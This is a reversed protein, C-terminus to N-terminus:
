GWHISVTPILLSLPISMEAPHPSANVGSFDERCSKLIAVVLIPVLQEFVTSLSYFHWKYHLANKLFFVKARHKTQQYILGSRVQSDEKINEPNGPSVPGLWCLHGCQYHPQHFVVYPRYYIFLFVWCLLWTNICQLSMIDARVSMWKYRTKKVCALLHPLERALITPLPGPQVFSVIM